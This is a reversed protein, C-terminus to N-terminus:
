PGFMRVAHNLNLVYGGSQDLTLLRKNDRTMAAYMENTKTQALAEWDEFSDDQQDRRIIWKQRHPQPYGLQEPNDRGSAVIAYGFNVGELFAREASHTRIGNSDEVYEPVPFEPLSITNEGDGHSKCRIASWFKAPLQRLRTFIPKTGLSSYSGVWHWGRGENEPIVNEPMYSEPMENEPEEKGQEEDEPAEDEPPEDEPAEDEPPEDEPPEDEPPEDEPPENHQSESQKRTIFSTFVKTTYKTVTSGEAYIFRTIPHVYENTRYTARNRNYAGPTRKESGLVKNRFGRFSDIIRGGTYPGFPVEPILTRTRRILQAKAQTHWLHVQALNHADFQLFPYCRDIMWFFTAGAVFELDGKANNIGGGINSHMGPFWCQMLKTDSNDPPLEWIEPRFPMRHEDIALATTYPPETALM